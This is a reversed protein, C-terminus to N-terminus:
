EYKVLLGTEKNVMYIENNEIKEPAEFLEGYTACFYDNVSYLAVWDYEALLESQWQEATVTKTWIDGDFFPEGISWTFSDNTSNPRSEFRLVYYDFGATGQSIIYIKDDGDCVSEIKDALLEYNSRVVNSQEIYDGKVFDKVLTWPTIMLVIYCLAIEFIPSQDFAKQARDLFILLLTMTVALYAINMYRSFSALIVAEAEGFKFMYSVCLGLIYVVTQAAAIVLVWPSGIDMDKQKKTFLCYVLYLMFFATILLTIHILNIQTYGLSVASGELAGFFSYLVDSRYTEDTGTLVQWLISLDVPDSFNVEAHSTKLELSWLAKPLVVALGALLAFINKEKITRATISVNKGRYLDLIYAAALAIAFLMGADKALVLIACLLWIYLSYFIDKNKKTYVTALGTGSLIGLFPDIYVASFINRFFILPTFLIAIIAVLSSLPRRFTLREFFPFMVAFLFVQYALYVRWESFGEALKGLNYIKQFLYQFLAMAPPYSQFLSHANPNTGFDDLTTMVKVIDVWHSFEDWASAIKGVNLLALLFYLVVFVVAGPTVAYGLFQKLTRTRVIKVAAALYMAAALLMVAWFGAKLIGAVGFVFAILVLGMITIPLIEEYKRKFYAACFISGSSIMALFLINVLM